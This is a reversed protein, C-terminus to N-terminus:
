TLVARGRRRQHQRRGHEREAQHREAEQAHARHRDRDIGVARDGVVRLRHELQRDDLCIGPM